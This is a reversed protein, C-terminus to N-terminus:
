PARVFGRDHASMLDVPCSARLVVDLARQPDAAYCGSGWAGNAEIVAWHEGEVPDHVTGIDVVVASPLTAGLEALLGEAFGLVSARRPHGDLSVIEAEGDAAYQSGTRVAGDCVYLRFETTFRVLDAVLVLLGPDVADPGPLRSGDAYVRATIGKDNPSKVFVPRRLEYAQGIPMLTIERLTYEPPLAALWDRPAELLGIGLEAAVRDALRLGCYLAAGGGRLEGPVVADTLQVVRLGREAAARLLVESSGRPRHGFVLTGTDM